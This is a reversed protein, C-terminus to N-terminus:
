VIVISQLRSYCPREGRGAWDRGGGSDVDVYM